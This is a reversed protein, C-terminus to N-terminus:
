PIPGLGKAEIYNRWPIFEGNKYFGWERGADHKICLTWCGTPLLLQVRHRHTATRYAVSFPRRLIFTKDELYERYGGSLVISFFAFPHDHCDPDEDGRHFYHLCISLSGIEILTYVTLYPGELGYFTKTQILRGLV